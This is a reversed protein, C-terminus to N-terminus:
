IVKVRKFLDEAFDAEYGRFLYEYGTFVSKYKSVIVSDGLKFKQLRYESFHQGFLTSWVENENSKNVDKLKM